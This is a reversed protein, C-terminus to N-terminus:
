RAMRLDRLGFRRRLTERVNEPLAARPRAVGVSAQSAAQCGEDDARENDCPVALFGSTYGTSPDFGQGAIEGKDNIDSGYILYLSSGPPTLTNLDTMVGNEWLFARCIIFNVDCSQGVVQGKSNMGSSASYFDGPLTGLDTMVGDQWLFAHGTTDGALDSQGAVQGRNNIAAALNYMKGGFGGLDTVSWGEKGNQWLTAHVCDATFVASPFSTSGCTGSCGVVQGYDNIAVAVGAADGAIPRLEQIDGNPGWIVAEFDLKQPSICSADQTSNEALGVVQGRNNVATAQGQYGGLTPLPTMARDQWRFPLSIHEIGDCPNNGCFYALFFNEGLPDTEPTQASGVVVGKDNQFGPASSNPGGFTGLDTKVGKRWLFGHENQDGPLNDDGTVWGTNNIGYAAGQSGGLTGLNIVSYQIPSSASEQAALPLSISLAALVTTAAISKLTALKM